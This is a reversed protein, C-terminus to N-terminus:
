PGTKEIQNRIREANYIGLEAKITVISECVGISDGGSNPGAVLIGILEGSSNVVAGGSNGYWQSADIVLANNWDSWDLDLKTIIGKSINNVFAMNAPTGIVYIEDLLQPMKGLNLYPLEGNIEVFAVDSMDSVWIDTIDYKINDVEIWLGDHQVCHAATVLLNPQIAVCSGHGYGDTIIGCAPLVKNVFPVRTTIFMTTSFAILIISYFCIDNRIQKSM